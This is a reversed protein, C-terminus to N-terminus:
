RRQKKNSLVTSNSVGTNIKEQATWESVWEKSAPIFDFVKNM